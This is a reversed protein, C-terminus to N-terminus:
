LQWSLALDLYREYKAQCDAQWNRPRESLRRDRGRPVEYLMRALRAAWWVHMLFVYVRIRVAAGASDRLECYTEIAWDWRAAPVEAYAPHSIMDAIEFVPDGWGSNEWDVSAWRGPRRVFNLTNADVRCLALAPTPWNPLPMREIRRILERLAAPQEASPIAALHQYIRGLGDRASRMNVVAPRLAIPTTSPAITHVATYHRLLDQWERDSAPPQRDVAGALWTQVVVPQSYRDRDLYLPAPALALGARQLALLAAYERGARDREDRITFKVALDCQGDTARYLLNNAGGAVRAIRWQRWEADSHPVTALHDLLPLLARELDL